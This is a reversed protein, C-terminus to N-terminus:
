DLHPLLFQGPALKVLLCKKVKGLQGFPGVPGLPAGEGPVVVAAPKFGPALPERAHRDDVGGHALEVLAAPHVVAAAHDHGGEQHLVQDAVPAPAFRGEHRAQHIAVQGGVVAAPLPAGAAAHVGFRQADEVRGGLGALEIGIAGVDAGPQRLQAM